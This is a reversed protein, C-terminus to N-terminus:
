LLRILMYNFGGIALGCVLAALLGFFILSNQGDMVKMAVASALGITAPISLDVNGPGLTIVFMQGLGVLVTFVAFSLAAVLMGSAGQGALSFSAVWVILAGLFSWLWVPWNSFHWRSQNLAIDTM